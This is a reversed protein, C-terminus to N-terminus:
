RPFITARQAAPGQLHSELDLGMFYLLILNPANGSTLLRQLKKVMRWDFSEPSLGLLASMPRKFRALDIVSPRVWKTAGRGYMFHIAASSWGYDSVREFLTQIHAPILRNALGKRGLFVALADDYSLSDGVDLGYHKPRGHNLKGLRDFFQNGVIGHSKPHTGLLISVQCTFTISPTPCILHHHYANPELLRAINPVTGLALAEALVDPRLGDIDYIVSNKLIM